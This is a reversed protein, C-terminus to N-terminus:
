SNRSDSEVPNSFEPSVPCVQGDLMFWSKPLIEDHGKWFSQMCFIGNIFVAERRNSM